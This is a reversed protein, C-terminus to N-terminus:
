ARGAIAGDAPPWVGSGYFGAARSHDAGIARPGASGVTPGHHRVREGGVGDEVRHPDADDVARGVRVHRRQRARHGVVADVADHDAARRPADDGVEVQHGAQESPRREAIWWRSTPRYRRGRLPWTLPSTAAPSRARRGGCRARPSAARLRRQRTRVPKGSADLEARLYLPAGGTLLVGRLVPTIFPRSAVRAGLRQAITAAAADAQQAALGGQKVPFSTADGAALVRDRRHRPRGPRHPHVRPRRVAPGAPAPGRVAAPQARHRRAGGRRVRAVPRGRHHARAPRRDAAPHSAARAARALRRRGRRRLDGATRARRDRRHARRRPRGAHRLETRAMIALEYAPLPWTVDSPVAVAIRERHGRVAEDLVWQVARADAPGGFTLAGPVAPAPRAGIAVLLHDYLLADGGEVWALRAGPRRGGARGTRATRRLAVRARAPRAVAGRRPRVADSVSTPRDVLAHEPALLDIEFGRGALARLALVAELAAVGSGAIVVRTM